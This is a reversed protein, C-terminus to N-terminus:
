KALARCAQSYAEISEHVEPSVSAFRLGVLAHEGAKHSWCVTARLTVAAVRGPPVFRLSLSTGVPLVAASLVLMGGHSLDESCGEHLANDGVLLRVPTFYPLRPNVRREGQEPLPPPAGEHALFISKLPAHELVEAELFREEESDKAAM